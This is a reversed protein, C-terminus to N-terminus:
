AQFKPDDSGVGTAGPKGLGQDVVRRPRIFMASAAVLAVLLALWTMLIVANQPCWYSTQETGNQLLAELRSGLREQPSRRNMEDIVFRRIRELEEAHERDFDPVWLDYSRRTSRKYFGLHLGEHDWGLKRTVTASEETSTGINWLPKVSDREENPPVRYSDGDPTVSCVFHEFIARIEPAEPLPGLPPGLWNALLALGLPPVLWLCAPVGLFRRTPYFALM